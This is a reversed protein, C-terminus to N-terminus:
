LSNAQDIFHQLAKTVKDRNKASKIWAPLKIFWSSNGFAGPDRERHTADIFALYDRAHEAGLAYLTGERMPTTLLLEAGFLPDRYEGARLLPRWAVSVNNERGCGGCTESIEAALQQQDVTLRSTPMKLAGNCQECRAPVPKGKHLAYAQIDWYWDTAPVQAWYQGTRSRMHAYALPKTRVLGCGLCSLRGATIRAAGDCRPCKVLMDAVYHQAFGGSDKHRRPDPM